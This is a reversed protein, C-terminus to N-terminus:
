TRWQCVSSSATCTYPVIQCMDSVSKMVNVKESCLATCLSKSTTQDSADVNSINKVSNYM